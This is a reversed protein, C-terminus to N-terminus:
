RKAIRCDYASFGRSVSALGYLQQRVIVSSPVVFPVAVGPVGSSDVSDSV